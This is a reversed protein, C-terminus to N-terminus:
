QTTEVAARVAEVLAGEQEPFVTRV